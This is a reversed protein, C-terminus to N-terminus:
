RRRRGSLALLGLVLLLFLGGDHGGPAFSCGDGSRKNESSSAATSGGAAVSGGAGNGGAGNGGTSVVNDAGDSLPADTQLATPIDVTMAVDQAGDVQPDQSVNVDLSLPGDPQSDVGADRSDAEACKADCLASASPSPTVTASLQPPYSPSFSSSSEVKYTLASGTPVHCDCMYQYTMTKVGSGTDESTTDGTTFWTSHSTGYTAISPSAGYNTLYRLRVHTSGTVEASLRTIIAVPNALATGSILSFCVFALSSIKM